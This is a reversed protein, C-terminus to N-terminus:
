SKDVTIIHPSGRRNNGIRKEFLDRLRIIEQRTQQYLKTSGDIQIARDIAQMAEDFLRQELRVQALNNLPEATGPHLAAAHSFADAARAMDAVAYHINGLGMWATLSDPWRETAAIYAQIAAKTHGAAELEVSAQLYGKEEAGTPFVGAPQVVMAWSGGRVWTREFTSLPMQYDARNGSHLRIEKDALNYGTVVAYHWQPAIKLGLNQLVIVPHGTKIEQLIDSLQPNLPYAILGFSRATAAMEIQIAGGKDPIFLRERLQDPSIKEGVFNLVMALTAPGCQQDMQPYFPVGNIEATNRLELHHSETISATQKASCGTFLSTALITILLLKIAM